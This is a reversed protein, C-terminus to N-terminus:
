EEEKVIKVEYGLIDSIESVTMEKVPMKVEEFIVKPLLIYEDDEYDKDVGNNKIEYLDEDYEKVSFVENSGYYKKWFDLTWDRSGYWRKDQLDKLNIDKKIKVKM